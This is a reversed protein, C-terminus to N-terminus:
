HVKPRSIWLRSTIPSLQGKGMHATYIRKTLASTLATEALNQRWNLSVAAGGGQGVSSSLLFNATTQAQPAAPPVPRKGLAMGVVATMHTEPGFVHVPVGLSGGSLSISDFHVISVFRLSPAM